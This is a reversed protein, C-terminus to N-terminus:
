MSQSGSVASMEAAFQNSTRGHSSGRSTAAVSPAGTASIMRPLRRGAGPTTGHPRGRGGATGTLGDTPQGDGGAGDEQRRAPRHRQSCRDGGDNGKRGDGERGGERDIRDDRDIRDIRDIRDVGNGQQRHFARRGGGFGGLTRRGQRRDAIAFDLAGPEIEGRRGKGAEALGARGRGEGDGCDGAAPTLPGVALRVGPRAARPAPATRWAAPEVGTPDERGVGSGAALPPFALCATAGRDHGRDGNRHDPRTQDTVAAVVALWGHGPAPRAQAVDGGAVGHGAVPGIPRARRRLVFGAQFRLAADDGGVAGTDVRRAERRDAPEDAGELIRDRRPRLPEREVGDGRGPRDALRHM